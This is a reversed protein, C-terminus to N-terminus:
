GTRTLRVEDPMRALGFDLLKTQGEPTVLVNSPKIDRHVLGHRHAEILADAVQHAIHCAFGIPLPSAAVASELDVGPIFEMVFYPVAPYDPGQAPEEGADIASVINPHKLKGVARAEQFFRALMRPNQEPTPQLAKVAVLTRLQRHEARYVVGMGGCGIKDLLRYNGLVLGHLRGTRVRETQFETMLRAAVLAALLAEEDPASDVSCRSDPPLADYDDAPVVGATLLRRLLPSAADDPSLNLPLSSSFLHSPRFSWRSRVGRIACASRSRRYVPSLGSGSM